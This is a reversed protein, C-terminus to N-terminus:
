SYPRASTNHGYRCLSNEWDRKDKNSLNDKKPELNNQISHPHDKASYLGSLKEKESHLPKTIIIM